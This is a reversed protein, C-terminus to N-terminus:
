KNDGRIQKAQKEVGEVEEKTLNRVNSMDEHSYWKTDGGSKLWDICAKWGMAYDITHGACEECKMLRPEIYSMGEIRDYIYELVRLEQQVAPTRDEIGQNVTLLKLLLDTIEDINILKM